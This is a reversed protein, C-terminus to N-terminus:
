RPPARSFCLAIVCMGDWISGCHDGCKASLVAETQRTHRGGRGLRGAETLGFVRLWSTTDTGVLHFIKKALDIGITHVNQRM